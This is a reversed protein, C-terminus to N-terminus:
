LLKYDYLVHKLLQFSSLCMSSILVLRVGAFLIVTFTIAELAARWLCTRSTVWINLTIDGHTVYNKLLPFLRPLTRFWVFYSKGWLHVPQMGPFDTYMLIMDFSWKTKMFYITCSVSSEERHSIIGPMAPHRAGGTEMWQSGATGVTMAAALLVRWLNGVCAKVASIM